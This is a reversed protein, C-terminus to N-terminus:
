RSRAVKKRQLSGVVQQFEVLERQTFYGLDTDLRHQYVSILGQLDRITAAGSVGRRRMSPRKVLTNAHQLAWFVAKSDAPLESGRSKCTAEQLLVERLLEPSIQNKSTSKAM